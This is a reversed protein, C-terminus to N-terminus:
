RRKACCRPSAPLCAILEDHRQAPAMMALGMAAHIFGCPPFISANVRGNSGASYSSVRRSGVLKSL